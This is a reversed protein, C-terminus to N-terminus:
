GQALQAPRSFTAVRANTLRLLDACRMRVADEHTGGNFTIFEDQVLDESVFTPLNYLNGFPPEAGVDCDPFLRRMEDETALRLLKAGLVFRLRDFSILHHAPLAAVAYSNDACVVVVKIFERGKTHTDAAAEQATFEPRHHVVEYAVGRDDLFSKVRNAIATM